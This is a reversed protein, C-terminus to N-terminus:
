PAQVELGPVCPRRFARRNGTRWVLCEGNLFNRQSELIQGVDSLWAQQKERSAAQMVYRVLSGDPRRATLVLVRPDQEM